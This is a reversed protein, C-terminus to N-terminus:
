INSARYVRRDKTMLVATAEFVNDIVTNNKYKIFSDAKFPNYRYNICTSVASPEGEQIYGVVGAHVNKVGTRLVRERGGPQVRFEVDTLWVEDAHLIVRGKMDGSLARVSWCHKHLNYYCFVRLREEQCKKNNM